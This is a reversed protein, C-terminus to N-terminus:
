IEQLKQRAAKGYSTDSLALKRYISIAAEKRASMEYIEALHWSAKEYFVPDSVARKYRIEAEYIRGTMRLSEAFYFSANPDNSWISLMRQSIAETKLLDNKLWASKLSAIYVGYNDKSELPRYFDDEHMEDGELFVPTGSFTPQETLEPQHESLLFVSPLEVPSKRDSKESLPLTTVPDLEKVTPSNHDLNPEPLDETALPAPQEDDLEGAMPSRQLTAHPTEEMASKIESVQHPSQEPRDAIFWFMAVLAILIAAGTIKGIRKRHGFLRAKESAYGYSGSLGAIGKEGIERFANIEEEPMMREPPKQNTM